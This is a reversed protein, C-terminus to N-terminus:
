KNNNHREIHKRYEEYKKDSEYYGKMTNYDKTLLKLKNKLLRMKKTDSDVENASELNTILIQYLGLLASTSIIFLFLEHSNPPSGEKLYGSFNIVVYYIILFLIGYSTYKSLRTFTRRSKTIMEGFFIALFFLILTIIFIIIIVEM